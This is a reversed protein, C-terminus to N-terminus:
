LGLFCSETLVITLQNRVKCQGTTHDNMFKVESPRQEIFWSQGPFKKPLIDRVYKLRIMKDESDKRKILKEEQNSAERSMIQEVKEIYQERFGQYAEENTTIQYRTPVTDAGDRAAKGPYRIMAPDPQTTDEWYKAALQTVEQPFTQRTPKSPLLLVKEEGTMLKRKMEMVEQEEKKTLSCEPPGFRLSTLSAAIVKKQEQGAKSPNEKLAKMTDRVSKMAVKESKEKKTLHSIRNKFVESEIVVKPTQSIVTLINQSSQGELNDRYYSESFQERRQKYVESKLVNQNIEEGSEFLEYDSKMECIKLSYVERRKIFKKKNSVKFGLTNDVEPIKEFLEKDTKSMLKELAKENLARTIEDKQSWEEPDESKEDEDESDNEFAGGLNDGEGDIYGDDVKDEVQEESDEAGGEATDGYDKSNEGVPHELKQLRVEATTVLQKCQSHTVKNGGQAKGKLHCILVKAKDATYTQDYAPNDKVFELWRNTVEQLFEMKTQLSGGENKRSWKGPYQPASEPPNDSVKLRIVDQSHPM